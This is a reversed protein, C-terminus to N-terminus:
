SGSQAARRRLTVCPRDLPRDHLVHAPSRQRLDREHTPRLVGRGHRGVDDVSLRRRIPDHASVRRRQDDTGARDPLAGLLARRERSTVARARVDRQHAPTGDMGDRRWSDSQLHVPTAPHGHVGFEVTSHQEGREGPLGPSAWGLVLITRPGPDARPGFRIALSPRQVDHGRRGVLDVRQDDQPQRGRGEDHADGDAPRERRRDCRIAALDGHEHREHRRTGLQGRGRDVDPVDRVDSRPDQSRASRGGYEVPVPVSSRPVGPGPVDVGVAQPVPLQRDHTPDDGARTAVAGVREGDTEPRQDAHPRHVMRQHRASPVRSRPVTPNGTFESDRSGAPARLAVLRRRQLDTRRFVPGVADLTRRALANRRATARARDGM